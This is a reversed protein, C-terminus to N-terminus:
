FPGHLKPVWIRLFGDIFEATISDVNSAEPILWVVRYPGPFLERRHYIARRNIKNLNLWWETSRMGSIVLRNTNVEVRIDEANVGPLEMTIVYGADLEVVDMCPSWELGINKKSPPESKSYGFEPAQMVADSGDATRAFLPLDDSPLAGYEKVEKSESAPKSFLPEVKTRPISYKVPTSDITDIVQQPTTRGEKDLLVTQSGTTQRMYFAQSYSGQRAFLLRNDKRRSSSNDSDGHCVLSALSASCTVAGFHCALRHIRRSAVNSTEM